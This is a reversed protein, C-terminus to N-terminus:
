EAALAGNLEADLAKLDVANGDADVVTATELVVALAKARRIDQIAMPVQGAEVLAQAFQDPSMGYRPAQQVLWASLESEGVSVEEQEAIKDLIFQSKLAERAQQEVETRHEEGSDHGDEFHAEVEATIVAEPLPIDISEVLVEHVKNRAEAGQELRKLRVLRTKVDDQLEAVTDFESAMQAFDDNLEPLERERVGKVEVNVTLPIGVWDGNQPTFEFSRSEGAKAGRVAEDFGPLMGETGLEYSLANGILDDVADGEPTAGAIDVLLVDGDAAAREVDKLTAFRSRLSDVQATVDDDNPVANGVEVRLSAFEPLDFEPRVDVEATFALHKGDELETVDVTPQGVPIVKHERVAEDYAKPLADNVAEELVAGRGFRQEIIRAPVKGKRFGPISVQKGIRGYAADLSDKMEDFPVEVTLKVRTPSLTEVDSKM